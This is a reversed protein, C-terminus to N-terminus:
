PKVALAVHSARLYDLDPHAPDILAVLFARVMYVPRAEPIPCVAFAQAGFSAARHLKDAAREDCPVGSMFEDHTKLMLRAADQVLQDHPTM